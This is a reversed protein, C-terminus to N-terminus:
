RFRFSEGLIREPPVGLTRFQHRLDDVFSAPGCLMVGLENPEAWACSRGIGEVARFRGGASSDWLQYDVESRCGACLARIDADYYAESRRAVIYFLRIRRPDNDTAEFALMALFPSIGMGAAVCVIESRDALAHMSVGGFPGYIDIPWGEPLRRLDHSFAGLARVSLRLERQAPSSSLSFLHMERTAHPDDALAVFVFMGPAYSMRTQAPRLALDHNMACWAAAQMYLHFAHLEGNLLDNLAKVTKKNSM